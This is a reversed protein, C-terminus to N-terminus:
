FLINLFTNLNNLIKQNIFLIYYLIYLCSRHSVRAVSFCDFSYLFMFCFMFSASDFIATYTSLLLGCFTFQYNDLRKFPLLGEEKIQDVIVVRRVEVATHATARKRKLTWLTIMAKKKPLLDAFIGNYFLCVACILYWHHIKYIDGTGENLGIISWTLSDIGTAALHIKEACSRKFLIALKM